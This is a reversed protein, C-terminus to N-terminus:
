QVAEAHRTALRMGRIHFYRYVSAIAFVFGSLIIGTAITKLYTLLFISSISLPALLWQVFMGTFIDIAPIVELGIKVIVGIKLSKLFSDMGKQTAKAEIFVYIAIFTACGALMGAVHEVSNHETLLAAVFSAVSSLTVLLTWKLWLKLRINM